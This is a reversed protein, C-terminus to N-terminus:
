YQPLDAERVCEGWRITSPDGGCKTKGDPNGTCDVDAGEGTCM